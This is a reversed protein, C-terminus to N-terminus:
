SLAFYGTRRGDRKVLQAHLFVGHGCVDLDSGGLSLFLFGVDLINDRLDKIFVFFIFLFWAGFGSIVKILDCGILFSFLLDVHGLFGLQGILDAVLGLSNSILLGLM